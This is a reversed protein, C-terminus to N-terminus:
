TGTTMVLRQIFPPSMGDRYPIATRTMGENARMLRYDFDSIRAPGLFKDFFPVTKANRVQFGRSLM